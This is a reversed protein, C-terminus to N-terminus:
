SVTEFSCEESIKPVNRLVAGIILLFAHVNDLPPHPLAITALGDEGDIERVSGITSRQTFLQTVNPFPKVQAGLM